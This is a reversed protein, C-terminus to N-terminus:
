FYCLHNENLKLFSYLENIYKSYLKMENLIIVLPADLKTLKELRTNSADIRNLIVLIKERIDQNYSYLIDNPIKIEKLPSIQKEGFLECLINIAVTGTCANLDARYKYYDDFDVFSGTSVKKNSSSLIFFTKFNLINKILSTPLMTLTEHAQNELIIPKCLKINIM